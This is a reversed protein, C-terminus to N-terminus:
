VKIASALIAALILWLLGAVAGYSFAFITLGIFVFFGM